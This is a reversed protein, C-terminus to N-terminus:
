IFWDHGFKEILMKEVSEYLVCTGKGNKSNKIHGFWNALEHEQKENDSAKEKKDKSKGQLKLCPKRDYTAHFHIYAKARLLSNPELSNVYWKNGLLKNLVDEVCSYLTRNRGKVTKKSKKMDGFWTALDHELKENETAKEKEDKSKGGLVSSPIRNYTTYFKKFDNAKQLAKQEKEEKKYWTEGLLNIFIDEVSSYLNGRTNMGRKICKMHGYWIALEDEQKQSETKEDKSKGQLVYSPIRNYTTYFYKFSNAKMLSLEELNDKEYWSKGLLQELLVLISPYIFRKKKFTKKIVTFWTALAHEEKKSIPAKNKEDKPKGALVLSPKREHTIYFLKFNMAKKMAIVERQNEYWKEGFLEIM